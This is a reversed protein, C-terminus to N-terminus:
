GASKRREAWRAKMLASLRERGAASILPKKRAARKSAWWKRKAEGIRKRAALSVTRTKRRSPTNKTPQGRRPAHAELAAIAQDLRDRQDSLDSLIQQLNM